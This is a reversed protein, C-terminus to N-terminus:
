PENTWLPQQSWRDTSLTPLGLSQPRILGWTKPKLVCVSLFLLGGGSKGEKVSSIGVETGQSTSKARLRQWTTNWIAIFQFSNSAWGLALTGVVYSTVAHVQNTVKILILGPSVPAIVVEYISFVPSNLDKWIRDEWAELWAFPRYTTMFRMKIIFSGSLVKHPQRLIWM